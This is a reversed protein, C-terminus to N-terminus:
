EAKACAVVQGPFRAEIKARAAAASSAVVYHTNGNATKVSYTNSM